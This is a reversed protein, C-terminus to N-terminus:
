QTANGSNTIKNCANHEASISCITKTSTRLRSSSSARNRLSFTRKNYDKIQELTSIYSIHGNVLRCTFTHHVQDKKSLQIQIQILRFIRGIEFKCFIKLTRCRKSKSKFEMVDRTSTLCNNCVINNDIKYAVYVSSMM